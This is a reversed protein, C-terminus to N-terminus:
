WSGWLGFPTASVTLSRRRLQVVGVLQAAGGLALGGWAARELLLLQDTGRVLCPFPDSEWGRLDRELSPMWALILGSSVLTGLSSVSWAWPSRSRLGGAVSGGAGAAILGWGVGNAAAWGVPEGGSTSIRCGPELTSLMMATGLVQTGAAVWTLERALSRDLVLAEAYEGGAEVTLTRTTSGVKLEHEGPALRVPGPARGLPQGDIFLRGPTPIGDENVTSVAVVGVAPNGISVQLLEGRRVSVRLEHGGLMLVHEGEKLDSSRYTEGASVLAVQRGDIWLEGDREILVELRPPDAPTWDPVVLLPFDGSSEGAKYPRQVRGRGRSDEAMQQSLYDFLEGTTVVGDPAGQTDAAGELGELLYHTFLGAKFAEVEYSYDGAQTSFLFFTGDTSWGSLDVVEGAEGGGKGKSMKSRCADWIVVRRKAPIDQLDEMIRGLPVGTDVQLGHDADMPLLVNDRHGDVDGVFGHGSFYFVVTDLTEQGEADGQPEAYGGLAKLINNRTPRRREEEEDPTMLVVQDPAYLGSQQLVAAFRRADEAAFRLDHFDDDIYADVGIVFALRGASGEQLDEVTLAGQGKQGSPPEQAQALSLLLLILRM